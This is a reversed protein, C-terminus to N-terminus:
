EPDESKLRISIQVVKQGPTTSVFSIKGRALVDTSDAATIEVDPQTLLWYAAAMAEGLPNGAAALDRMRAMNRAGVEPDPPPDVLTM